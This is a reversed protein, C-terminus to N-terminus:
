HTRVGLGPTSHNQTGRRGELLSSREYSHSLASRGSPPPPPPKTLLYSTGEEGRARQGGAQLARRGRALGGAGDPHPPSAWAARGGSAAERTPAGTATGPPATGQTHGGQVKTCVTGDAQHAWRGRSEQGSGSEMPGGDGQLQDRPGLPTDRDESTGAVGMQEMGWLPSPWVRVLGGERVRPGPEGLEM